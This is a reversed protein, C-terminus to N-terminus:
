SRVLMSDTADALLGHEVLLHATDKVLTFKLGSRDAIDLLTHSGDALNLVWLMAMERSKAGQQGGIMEYLGRRGLQPECKPNLNKYIKNNEVIHLAALAKTFSDALYSPQVFELNDASTHYESYRGHPTRM